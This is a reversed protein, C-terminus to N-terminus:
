SLVDVTVAGAPLQGDIGLADLLAALDNLDAAAPDHLPPRVPGVPVGRLRVGAKILSVAYGAGRDRLRVFPLVAERALRDVEADDGGQLATFFRTAIEPMFNLIASSYAVIGYRRLAPALVEATPTGNLFAFATRDVVAVQQQLLDLRGTGDKLAIVNPIDALVRVDDPSFIATDRQYIVVSLSTSAAVARYYGLYDSPSAASLYPPFVLIGDAGAKEAARAMETAIGAGFGVGPLVPFRGAAQSVCTTVVTAFEESSLAAMEGTGCGPFIARAGHSTLMEAHSALIGADISNDERFPTVPFALLGSLCALMDDYSRQM